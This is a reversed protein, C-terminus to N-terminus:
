FHVVTPGVLQTQDNSSSAAVAVIIVIVLALGGAGAAIGIHLLTDDSRAPPTPAAEEARLVHVIPADRSGQQALVAGGPGLAEVYAEAEGGRADITASTGSSRRWPVAGSRTWIVVDTVLGAADDWVTASVVTRDGGDDEWEASVTIPTGAMARLEEALEPPAEPPFVHEPDLSALRTLDDRAGDADGNARRAIARSEYIAVLDERTLGDQQEARDLAVVAGEFDAEELLRRGEDLQAAAIDPMALMSLALVFATKM